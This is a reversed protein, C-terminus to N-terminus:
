GAARTHACWCSFFRSTPRRNISSCCAQHTEFQVHVDVDVSGRASSPSSCKQAARGRSGCADAGVLVASRFQSPSRSMSRSRSRMIRASALHTYGFDFRPVSPRARRFRHPWEFASLVSPRACAQRFALRTRGDSAHCPSRAARPLEAARPCPRPRTTSMHAHAHTAACPWSPARSRAPADASPAPRNSIAHFSCIHTAAPPM